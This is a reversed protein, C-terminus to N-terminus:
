YEFKKNINGAIKEFLTIEEHSLNQKWKDDFKIQTENTRFRMPNGGIGHQIKERFNLMNPEYDMPIFDCITKIMLEPDQCLSEYAIQIFQNYKLKKLATQINQHNNKWQKIIRRLTFSKKRKCTNIYAKGNRTLYIVKFNINSPCTYLLELMRSASMSADIAVTADSVKFIADILKWHNELRQINKYPISGPIEGLLKFLFPAKALFLKYLINGQLSDTPHTKQITQASFNGKELVAQWFQCQNLAIGYGCIKDVQYYDSFHKIEGLSIANSHSGLLLELLTSGSHPNCTIYIYSKSTM